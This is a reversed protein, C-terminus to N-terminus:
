LKIPRVSSLSDFDIELEDQDNRFVCSTFEHDLLIDNMTYSYRAQVNASTAEDVAEFCAVIETNRSTQNESTLLPYLPSDRTIPHVVTFPLCLLPASLDIDMCKGTQNNIQFYLEHVVPYVGVRQPKKRWFSTLPSTESTNNNSGGYLIADESIHLANYDDNQLPRNGTNTEIYQQILGATRNKRVRVQQKQLLENAHQTQSKEYEVREDENKWEILLLRFKTSIFQTKRTNVFRFILFMPLTDKFPQPPITVQGRQSIENYIEQTSFYGVHNIVANKSFFIRKRLKTPRSFKAVSITVVITSTFLGLFSQVVVISNAYISKPYLGGYGITFMTQVSFFFCQLFGYATYDGEDFDPNLGGITDKGAVFYLLAFILHLILHAVIILILLKWWSWSILIHYISTIDVLSSKIIHQNKRKVRYHNNKRSILRPLDRICFKFASLHVPNSSDGDQSGSSIIPSAKTALEIKEEEIEDYDEYDEDGLARFFKRIKKM